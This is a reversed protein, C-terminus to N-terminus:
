EYIDLFELNIKEVFDDIVIDCCIIEDNVEDVLRCFIYIIFELGIGEKSNVDIIGNYM